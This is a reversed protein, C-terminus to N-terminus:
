NSGAVGGGQEVLVGQVEGGLSADHGQQGLDFGLQFGSTGQVRDVSHQVLEDSLNGGLLGLVVLQESGLLSVASVFDGVSLVFDGLGVGGDLLGGFGEVSASGLSDSGDLIQIDGGSLESFVSVEKGEDLLGSSSFGVSELGGSFDVLLGGSGDILGEEDEFLDPGSFGGEGLEGSVHVSHELTGGLDSLNVVESSNHAGEGLQGGLVELSVFGEELSDLGHQGVESGSDLSVVLFGSGSLLSGDSGVVFILGSQGSENLGKGGLLFSKLGLDALEVLADGGLSSDDEGGGGLSVSVLLEEVVGGGEALGDGILVLGGGLSSSFLEIEESSDSLSNLGSEGLKGAVDGSDSLLVLEGIVVVVGILM